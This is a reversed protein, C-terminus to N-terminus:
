SDTIFCVLINLVKSSACRLKLNFRTFHNNPNATNIEILHPTHMVGFFSLHLRSVRLRSVESEMKRSIYSPSLTERRQTVAFYLFYTSLRNLVVM